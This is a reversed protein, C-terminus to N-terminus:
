PRWVSWRFSLLQHMTVHNNLRPKQVFRKYSSFFVAGLEQSVGGVATYAFRDWNLNWVKRFISEEIYLTRKIEM